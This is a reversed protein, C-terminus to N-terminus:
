VPAADTYAAKPPAREVGERAWYHSYGYRDAENKPQVVAARDAGISEAVRGLGETIALDIENARLSVFQTSLESVLREFAM